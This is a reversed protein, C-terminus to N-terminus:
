NSPAAPISLLLLSAHNAPDNEFKLVPHSGETIARMLERDEFDEFDSVGELSSFVRRTNINVQYVSHIYPEVALYDTLITMAEHQLLANDENATMWNKLARDEYM